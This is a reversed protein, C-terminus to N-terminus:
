LSWRERPQWLWTQSALVTLHFIHRCQTNHQCIGMIWGELLLLIALFTLSAQAIYLLSQKLVGGEWVIQTYIETTSLSLFPRATNMHCSDRVVCCHTDPCKAQLKRSCNQEGTISVAGEQKLRMQGLLPQLRCRFTKHGLQVPYSPLHWCAWLTPLCTESKGTNSIFANKVVAM